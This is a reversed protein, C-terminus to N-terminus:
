ENERIYKDLESELPKRDEKDKATNYIVAKAEKWDKVEKTFEALVAGTGDSAPPCITTEVKFQIPQEAPRTFVPQYRDDTGMGKAQYTILFAICCSAHALHSLGSDPDTDEGDNFATVHRLAADILRQWEMGKRWSHRSYKTKNGFDLALSTSELFERPILGLPPKGEETKMNDAM